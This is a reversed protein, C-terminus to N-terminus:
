KRENDVRRRRRSRSRSRRRRRRRKRRRRRRRRIGEKKRIGEKIPTSATNSSVVPLLSEEIKQQNTFDRAKEEINCNRIRRKMALYENVIAKRKKPDKIDLFSM